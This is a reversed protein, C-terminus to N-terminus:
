RQDGIGYIAGHQQAHDVEDEAEHDDGKDTEDQRKERVEIACAFGQLRRRHRHGDHRRSVLVGLVRHDDRGGDIGHEARTPDDVDALRPWSRAPSSFEARTQM